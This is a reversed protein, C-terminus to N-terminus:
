LPSLKGESQILDYINGSFFEVKSFINNLIEIEHSFINNEDYSKNVSYSLVDVNELVMDLSQQFLDNKKTIYFDFLYYISLLANQVYSCETESYDDADPVAAYIENIDVSISRKAAIADVGHKIYSCFVDHLNTSYIDDFLIFLDSQRNIYILGLIFKKDQPLAVLRDLFDKGYENLISSM